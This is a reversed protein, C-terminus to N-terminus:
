DITLLWNPFQTKLCQQINLDYQELLQKAVNDDIKIEYIEKQLLFWFSSLYFRGYKRYFSVFSLILFINCFHVFNLKVNFSTSCTPPSLLPIKDISTCRDNFLRISCGTFCKVASGVRRASNVNIILLYFNFLYVSYLCHMYTCQVRKYFQEQHMIYTVQM